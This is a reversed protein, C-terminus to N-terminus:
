SKLFLKIQYKYINRTKEIRLQSWRISPIAELFVMMMSAHLNVLDKVFAIGDLASKFNPDPIKFKNIKQEFDIVAEYATRQIARNDPKIRAEFPNSPSDRYIIWFGELISLFNEQFPDKKPHFYGIKKFVTM